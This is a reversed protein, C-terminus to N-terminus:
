TSTRNGANGCEEPKRPCAGLLSFAGPDEKIECARQLFGVAAEFDRLDIALGGLGMLALASPRGIELAQKFASEAEESLGLEETLRGLRLFLNRTPHTEALQRWAELARENQSEQEFCYAQDFQDQPSV